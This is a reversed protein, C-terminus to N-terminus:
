FIYRPKLLSHKMQKDCVLNLELYRYGSFITFM